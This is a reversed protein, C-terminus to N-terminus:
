VADPRCTTRRSASFVKPTLSLIPEGAVMLFKLVARLCYIPYKEARQPLVEEAAVWLFATHVIFPASGSAFHWKPGLKVCGMQYNCPVDTDRWYSPMKRKQWHLKVFDGNLPPVTQLICVPSHGSRQLHTCRRDPRESPQWICPTGTATTYWSKGTTDSMVGKFSCIVPSMNLCAPHRTQQRQAHKLWLSHYRPSPFMKTVAQHNIPTWLTVSRHDHIVETHRSASVPSATLVTGLRTVMTFTAGHDKCTAPDQNWHMSRCQQVQYELVSPAVFSIWWMRM